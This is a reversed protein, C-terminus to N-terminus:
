CVLSYFVCSLRCLKPGVPPRAFLLAPSIKTTCINGLSELHNPLSGPRFLHFLGTYVDLRENTYDGGILSIISTKFARSVVYIHLFRKLVPLLRGIAVFSDIKTGRKRGVWFVDM